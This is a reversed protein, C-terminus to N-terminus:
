LPRVQGTHSASVSPMGSTLSATHNFAGQLGTSTPAGSKTLLHKKLQLEELIKRNNLETGTPSVYIHDADAHVCM